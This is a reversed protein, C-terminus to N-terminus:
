LVPRSYIDIRTELFFNKAIVPEVRAMPSLFSDTSFQGRLKTLDNTIFHENILLELFYM